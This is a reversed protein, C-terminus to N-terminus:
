AAVERLCGCARCAPLLGYLHEVAVDWARQSRLLEEAVTTVPRTWRHEGELVSLAGCVDLFTWPDRGPPDAANDPARGPEWGVLPLLLPRVTSSWFVNACWGRDDPRINEAAISVLRALAALRPERDALSAFTAM